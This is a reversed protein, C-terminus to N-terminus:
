VRGTGRRGVGRHVLAAGAVRLVGRGGPLCFRCFDLAPLSLLRGVRYFCLKM